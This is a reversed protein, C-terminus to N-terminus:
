ELCNTTFYDAGLALLGMAQEADDCTWLNILHGHARVEDAIRQNVEYINIDIDLDYKDLAEIVKEGYQGIEVLYQIRQTPLLERLDICNQLSFSIFIVKDLYELVTLEKILLKIDETEFRNKLEIICYKDGSRCINVYEELSPIRMQDGDYTKDPDDPIIRVRRVSEFDSSEINIDTDCNKGTDSDHHVVFKKDATVHIDCEIGFYSRKAAEEFSPITNGKEVINGGSHAVMLTKGKNIKVTDKM